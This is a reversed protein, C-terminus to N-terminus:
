YSENSLVAKFIDHYKNLIRDKDAIELIHEKARRKFSELKEPNSLIYQTSAILTDIDLYPVIHGTENDKVIEKNGGTDFAVVPIGLTQAELLANSYNEILNPTVCLTCSKVIAINDEWTIHGPQYIFSNKLLNLEYNLDPPIPGSLYFGIKNDESAILRRVIEYIYRAGKIKSGASPIYIVPYDKPIELHQHIDNVLINQIVERLIINHNVFIPIDIQFSSKCVEVMYHSPSVIADAKKVARREMSCAIELDTIGISPCLVRNRFRHYNNGAFWILKSDKPKKLAYAPIGNDAILILDPQFKHLLQNLHFIKLAFILNQQTVRLAEKTKYKKLYLKVLRLFLSMVWNPIPRSVVDDQKAPHEDNYVFVKVNYHQKLLNYINYNSTAIGGLKPPFTTTYLAIKLKAM